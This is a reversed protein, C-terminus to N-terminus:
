VFPLSSEHLPSSLVREPSGDRSHVGSLSDFPKGEAPDARCVPGSSDPPLVHKGQPSFFVRPTLCLPSTVTSPVIWGLHLTTIPNLPPPALDSLIYHSLHPFPLQTRIIGVPLAVVRQEQDHRCPAWNDLIAERPFEAAM